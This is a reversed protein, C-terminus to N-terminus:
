KNDEKINRQIRIGTLICYLNDLSILKAVRYGGYLLLLAAIIVIFPSLLQFVTNMLYIDNLLAILIMHILYVGFTMNSVTHFLKKDFVKNTSVSFIAFAAIIHFPPGIYSFYSSDINYISLVTFALLFIILMAWKTKDFFKLLSDTSVRKLLSGMAFYGIWNLINLYDTINCVSIIHELKGAATLYVSIITIFISSIELIINTRYFVVFCLALMTMYYFFSGKGILYFIWDTINLEKVGTIVGWVYLVSGMFLWPIIISKIKSYVVKKASKYKQPNYYYGSLIMFIIVGISASTKLITYVSSDDGVAVHASVVSIIAFVRSVSFAKNIRIQTNNM